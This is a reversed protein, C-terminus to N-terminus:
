CWVLVDIVLVFLLLCCGSVVPFCCVVVFGWVVVFGLSRLAFLWVLILM